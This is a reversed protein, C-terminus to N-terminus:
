EKALYAALELDLERLSAALPTVDHKNELEINRTVFQLTAMALFDQGDMTNASSGYLKKYQLAKDNILKAAKRFKEEDSRDITLPYYREAINLNITLKEEM